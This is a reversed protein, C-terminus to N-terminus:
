VTLTQERSDFAPSARASMLLQVPKVKFRSAVDIIRSAHFTQARMEPVQSARALKYRTFAALLRVPVQALM